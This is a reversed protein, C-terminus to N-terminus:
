STAPAAATLQSGDAHTDADALAGGTPKHPVNNRYGYLILLM